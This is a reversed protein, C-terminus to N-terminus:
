ETRQYLAFGFPLEVVPSIQGVALPEAALRATRYFVKPDDYGIDGPHNGKVPEDGYRGMVEEFPVGALLQARAMEINSLSAQRSRVPWFTPAQAVSVSVMNFRPRKIASGDAAFHKSALYVGLADYTNEERAIHDDKGPKGQADFYRTEVCLGRSDYSWETVAAGDYGVTLQGETNRCSRRAFQRFADYETEVVACGRYSTPAGGANFFSRRSELHQANYEYRVVAANRRRDYGKNSTFNRREILHGLEDHDFESREYGSGGDTPNGDLDFNRSERTHGQADATARWSSNGERYRGPRGNEDLCSGSTRFGHTDHEFLYAACSGTENSIPSGDPKFYRMAKRNGVADYENVVRQTGDFTAVPQGHLDTNTEEITNGQADRSYAVCHVGASTAAPEGREDFNCTRTELGLADREFRLEHVSSPSKAPSGDPGFYRIRAPLGRADRDCRTETYRRDRSYDVRRFGDVLSMRTAQESYLTRDCVAGDPTYGTSEVLFDHEYRYRYETCGDDDAELGGVGNIRVRRAVRDGQYEFRLAYARHSQEEASLPRICLPGHSSVRYDACLEIKLPPAVSVAAPAKATAAAHCAGLVLLWLAAGSTVGLGACSRM